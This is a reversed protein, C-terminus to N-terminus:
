TTQSVQMRRVRVASWGAVLPGHRGPTGGGRSAAVSAQGVRSAERGTGMGPPHGHHDDGASDPRPIGARRPASQRCMHPGQSRQRPRSPIHLFRAGQDDSGQAVHRHLCLPLGEPGHVLHVTDWRDQPRRAPRHSRVCSTRIGTGSRKDLALKIFIGLRLTGSGITSDNHVATPPQWLYHVCKGPPYTEPPRSLIRASRPQGQGQGQQRQRQRRGHRGAAAGGRRTGAQLCM